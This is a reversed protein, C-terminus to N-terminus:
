HRRVEIETDVVKRSLFDDDGIAKLTIVKGDGTFVILRAERLALCVEEDMIGRDKAERKWGKLMERVTM